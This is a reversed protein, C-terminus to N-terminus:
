NRRRGVRLRSKVQSKGTPTDETVSNVTEVRVMPTESLSMVHANNTNQLLRSVSKPKRSVQSRPPLGPHDIGRGQMPAISPPAVFQTNSQLMENITNEVQDQSAGDSDMISVEMDDSMEQPINIGEHEMDAKMQQYVEQANLGMKREKGKNPNLQSEASKNVFGAVTEQLKSVLEPHQQALETLGNEEIYKQTYHFVLASGFFMWIFLYEPEINTIYKSYKDYLRGIVVDYKKRDVDHEIQVDWKELKFGFPDYKTNNSVAFKTVRKMGEKIIVVAEEKDDYKHQIMLEDEMDEISSSPPYERMLKRTKAYRKLEYYLEMKYVKKERETTWKPIPEDKKPEEKISRNSSQSKRTTISSTSSSKSKSGDDSSDSDSSDITSSSSSSSSRSRSRSSSKSSSSGHKRGRNIDDIMKDIQSQKKSQKSQKSHKSHKRKSSMTSISVSDSSSFSVSSDENFMAEMHTEEGEDIRDIAIMKEIPKLKTGDAIMELKLDTETQINQASKHSDRDRHRRQHKHSM